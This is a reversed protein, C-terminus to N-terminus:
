NCGKAQQDLSRYAVLTPGEEFPVVGFGRATKKWQDRIDPGPFTNIGIRHGGLYATGSDTVGGLPRPGCDSFAGAHLVAAVDRASSPTAVPHPAATSARDALALTAAVVAAWRLIANM